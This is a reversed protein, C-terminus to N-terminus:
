RLRDERVLDASDPMLGYKASMEAQIARIRRVAEEKRSREGDGTLNEELLREVSELGRNKAEAELRAYLEDSIELTRSM